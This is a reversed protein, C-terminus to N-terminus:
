RSALLGVPLKPLTRSQTAWFSVSSSTRLMAADSCDADDNAVVGRRGAKWDEGAVSGQPDREESGDRTISGESCGDTRSSKTKRRTQAPSFSGREPEERLLVQRLRRLAKTTSKRTKPQMEPTLHYSKANRYTTQLQKKIQFSSFIGASTLRSFHVPQSVQTPSHGLLAILM